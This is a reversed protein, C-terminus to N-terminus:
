CCEFGSQQWSARSTGPQCGGQSGRIPDPAAWLTHNVLAQQECLASGAARQQDLVPPQHRHQHYTEMTSNALLLSGVLAADGPGSPITENSTWVAGLQFYNARVDDLLGLM